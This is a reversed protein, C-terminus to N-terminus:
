RQRTIWRDLANAFRQKQRPGYPPPGGTPLEGGGRLEDMLDRVALRQQVNSRDLEEGMPRIVHAGQEIVQAALPIDNTIVLDGAACAEAIHEDAVDFGQEVQVFRVRRARPLRQPHNAVLVVEIERRDAARFLVQKCARPLADADVWVTAM